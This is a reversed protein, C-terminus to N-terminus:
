PKKVTIECTSKLETGVILKKNTGMLNDLASYETAVNSNLYQDMGDKQVLQKGHSTGKNSDTLKLIPLLIHENDLSYNSHIAAAIGNSDYFIKYGNLVTVKIDKGLITEVKNWIKDYLETKFAKSFKYNFGFLVPESDRKEYGESTFTSGALFGNVAAKIKGKLSSVLDSSGSIKKGLPHTPDVGFSYLLFSQDVQDKFALEKQFNTLADNIGKGNSNNSDFGLTINCIVRNKYYKSIADNSIDGQIDQYSLLLVLLSALLDEDSGQGTFPSLQGLSSAYPFPANYLSPGGYPLSLSSAYPFPAGYTYPGSYSSNTGYPTFIINKYLKVFDSYSLKM